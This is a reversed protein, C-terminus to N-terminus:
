RRGLALTRMLWHAELERSHPMARMCTRRSHASGAGAVHGHWTPADVQALIEATLDHQGRPLVDADASPSGDGGRLQQCLLNRALSARSQPRENKVTVRVGAPGGGPESSAEGHTMLKVDCRAGFHHEIAANMLAQAERWYAVQADSPLNDVQTQMEAELEKNRQRLQRLERRM